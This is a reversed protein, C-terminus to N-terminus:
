PTGPEAPRDTSRFAGGLLRFACKALEVVVKPATRYDRWWRPDFHEYPTVTMLVRCEPLARELLLKARRAHYPSTVALIVHRGPGLFDRLAEAEELTSLHGNGFPTLAGAPVGLQAYFAQAYAEFSGFRPWGMRWHIEDVRSPPFSAPRSLLIAPAWGERWLDAAYLWRSADGALPLIYDAKEPTDRVQLWQGAFYLAAGGTALGLLTLLGVLRLLRGVWRSM